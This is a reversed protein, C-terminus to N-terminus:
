IQHTIAYRRYLFLFFFTIWLIFISSINFLDFLLKLRLIPKLWEVNIARYLSPCFTNIQLVLITWYLKCIYVYIYNFKTISLFRTLLFELNTWFCLLIYLFNSVRRLLFINDILRRLVTILRLKRSLLLVQRTVTGIVRTFLLLWRTSITLIILWIIDHTYM